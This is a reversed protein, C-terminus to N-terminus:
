HSMPHTPLAATTLAVMPTSACSVAHSAPLRHRMEHADIRMVSKLKVSLRMVGINTPCRPSSSGAPVDILLM